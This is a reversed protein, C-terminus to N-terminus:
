LNISFAKRSIWILYVMSLINTCMTVLGAGVIGMLPIMVLNLLADGVVLALIYLTYLGPRNGQMIIGRMAGYGSDIVIGIVIVTFIVWSELLYSPDAFLKVILPYVIVAIGGITIMLPYFFKRFSRSLSEIEKKDNKSFARGIVPNLSLQAVVTIEYLGEALVAAFSYIGVHVDTLFVGIMLVDVKTNIGILLGSLFGKSGFRLHEKALLQFNKLRSLPLVKRFIYILLCIFLIVECISLSASIYRNDLNLAIIIGIIVFLLIYRLSRFFSFAKMEDLGNLVNILVKNLSFFVLSPLTLFLGTAVDPSDLLFGMPKILLLSIITAPISIVIILILASITIESCYSRDQHHYSVLRLVSHHLGFVVIQSFILYIAYVQSFVGLAEEGRTYVIMANMIFGSAALIVLSLMNWSLGQGLRSNMSTRIKEALQPNKQGIFDFLRELLRNISDM